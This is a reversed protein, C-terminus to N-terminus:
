NLNVRKLLNKFEPTNRLPDFVPDTKFLLSSERQDVARSLWSFVQPKDGLGMDILAVPYAPVPNRASDQLLEKLIDRAKEPNGCKAYAFGLQGLSRPDRGQQAAKEAEQIGQKCSGSVLYVLSL